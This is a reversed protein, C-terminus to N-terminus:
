CPFGMARFEGTNVELFGFVDASQQHHAVWIGGAAEPGNDIAREWDHLRHMLTNSKEAADLPTGAVSQGRPYYLVGDVQMLTSIGANREGTLEEDSVNQVLTVGGRSAAFLQAQPWERVCIEFLTRDTWSGHDLLQILYADDVTLKVFLLPDGREVFGDADMNASIHLHHIGWAAVLLDLDPRQNHKPRRQAVPVYARGIGRSLRPTLDDGAEIEAVVADVLTRHDQYSQSDTLPTSLHARRPRQDVRRGTWNLYQILLDGLPMADLEGSDDRGMQGRVAIRIMEELQVAANTM